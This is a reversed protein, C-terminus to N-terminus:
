MQLLSQLVVMAAASGVPITLNDNVPWPLTEFIFAFVAGTVAVAMLMETQILASIIGIVLCAALCSLNGELSKGWFRRKGWWKGVLTAIPDGVALFLTATVAVHVPFFAITLGAGMLYYTAGTLQHVEEDRVFIVLRTMLWRNLGYSRYRLWEVSFFVAAASALIAAVPDKGLVLVALVIIVGLSTHIVARALPSHHRIL